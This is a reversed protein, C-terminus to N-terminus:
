GIGPPLETAVTRNAAAIARGGGCCGAAGDGVALAGTKFHSTWSTREGVMGRWAALLRVLSYAGAVLLTYYILEPHGALIMVGIIAAGAAVYPIPHFSQVGKEEQKRIIFEIVALLLPLWVAGAIFMTFVVSVILFGSFMFVVGSFLAALPRLRLVRGLLYMNAGALAIQLATFWGYATELPLVYFLLSLPYFTSSQGAALFPIGTFIQPNWLPLQGQALTRQIHLKWVANELVLDSLLNNHPILGPQLSRWPEFSTLNDFPLLSAHTLGPLLVPAFWLLALVLITLLAFLDSRFRRLQHM